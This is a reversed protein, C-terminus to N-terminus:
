RPPNINRYLRLLFHRVKVPNTGSNITIRDAPAPGALFHFLALLNTANGEDRVSFIQGGAEMTSIFRWVERLLVSRQKNVQIGRESVRPIEEPLVIM